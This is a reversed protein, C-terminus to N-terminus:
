HFNDRKRYVLIGLMAVVVILWAVIANESKKHAQIRKNSSNTVEPSNVPPQSQIELSEVLKPEGTSEAARVHVPLLACVFFCALVLSAQLSRHIKKRVKM